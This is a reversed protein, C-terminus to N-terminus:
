FIASTSKTVGPDRSLLRHLHGVSSIKGAIDRLIANVSDRDLMFPGKTVGSAQIQVASMLVALNNAIRHNAESLLDSVGAPKSTQIELAAM